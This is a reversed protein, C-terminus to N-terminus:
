LRKGHGDEEPSAVDFPVVGRRIPEAIAAEWPPLANMPMKRRNSQNIRRGIAASTMDPNVKNM